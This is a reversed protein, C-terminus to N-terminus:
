QKMQEREEAMKVFAATRNMTHVRNRLTSVIKEKTYSSTPKRKYVSSYMQGLANLSYLELIEKDNKEKFIRYIDDETYLDTDTIETKSKQAKMYSKPIKSKNLKKLTKLLLDSDEVHKKLFENKEEESNTSNLNIIIEELSNISEKTLYMGDVGKWM